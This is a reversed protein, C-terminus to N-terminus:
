GPVLRRLEEVIRKGPAKGRLSEMARGILANLPVGPNAQVIAKIADRLAADPLTRYRSLAQVVPQQERLIDLVAEKAIDGRELAALLAAYDEDTRKREVGERRLARETAFLVEAIYAPKLGPFQRTFADFLASREHKAAFEALDKDLGLKQYRQSRHEIGEPLTISALLERTVPVPPIDTEPYMRAAGPMPRLYSTTGDDNAKRVEAPVGQFAQRLRAIAADLARRARDPTDAVMLFADHSDCALEKRVAATEEPTIGYKGLAEDSHFLGGVGAAVKAHDSLETGLRRGPQLERGLLGAMGQLRVGLMCGKHQLARLILKSSTKRFHPTLDALTRSVGEATAVPPPAPIRLRKLEDRLGLLAHQRLAEQEVLKPLLRLEQAGKIEVRVGGAISVNIDQRITGLGRKVRGTSRLLLGLKEATELCHAPSTIDPATGIELLPIGLRDLRYSAADPEERIIRCSDEELIVTPIRVRGASTEIWGDLGVLATRQFGSTNSGDVVTKRMVRLDDVPKAHLLLAAQLAAHLNAPSVPLPPTEDLEVLCTTDQYGEYIFHRNKRMEALAAIDVQGSEGAVAHLRRKVVFHPLDERIATPCRCFLKEGELQQHIEIGCKLGLAKCDVPM